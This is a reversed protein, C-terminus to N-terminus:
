KLVVKKTVINGDANMYKIINIGHSPKEIRRGDVSYVAVKSESTKVNNIGTNNSLQLSISSLTFRDDGEPLSSKKIYEFRVTHLGAGFVLDDNSLTASSADCNGGYIQKLEGDLFIETGDYLGIYGMFNLLEASSNTANWSLTGTQDEPVEFTAALWSNLTTSATMHSTSTYATNGDLVFPHEYSTDFSFDGNDVLVSFDSPINEINVACDVTFDGATTHLVVSGKYNGPQAANVAIEVPLQEGQEAEDNTPVVQFVGDATSSTLKLPESGVNLLNVNSSIEVPRKDIYRNGFNVDSDILTAVYKSNKFTEFDLDWFWARMPCTNYGDTYWDFRTENRMLINHKGEDLFVKGYAPHQKQDDPWSYTNDFYLANDVYIKVGNPQKAQSIGKWQFLGTQGKPVEVTMDLTSFTSDNLNTSLAVPYPYGEITDTVIFPFDTTPNFTIDGKKVIKQYDQGSNVLATLDVTAKNGNDATFVVRGTYKGSTQPLFSIICQKEGGAEIQTPASVSFGDGEAAATISSPVLSFNRLTVTSVQKFGPVFQPGSYNFVSPNVDFYPTNFLRNMSFTKLFELFGGPQYNSGIYGYCFIGDRATIHHLDDSVDLVINESTMVVQQGNEDNGLFGSLLTCHVTSGDDNKIQAIELYDTPKGQSPTSITITHADADYEGKIPYSNIVDFDSFDILGNITATSGSVQVDVNYLEGTEQQLGTMKNFYSVGDLQYTTSEAADNKRIKELGSNQRSSVVMCTSTKCSHGKLWILPFSQAHISLYSFVVALLLLLTKRM